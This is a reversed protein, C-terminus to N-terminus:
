SIKLFGSLIVFSVIVFFLSVFVTSMTVEPNPLWQASTGIVILGSEIEAAPIVENKELWLIAIPGVDISPYKSFSKFNTYINTM